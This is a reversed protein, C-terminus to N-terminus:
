PKNEANENKFLFLNGMCKPGFLKKKSKKFDLLNTVLKIKEPLSNWMLPGRTKLSKNGFARTKYSEVM